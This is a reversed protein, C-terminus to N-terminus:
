GLTSTKTIITDGTQILCSGNSNDEEEDQGGQLNKIQKLTDSIQKTYSDYVFDINQVQGTMLDYNGNFPFSDEILTLESYEIFKNLREAEHSEDFYGFM